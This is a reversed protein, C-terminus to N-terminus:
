LFPVTSGARARISPHNYTLALRGLEHHTTYMIIFIYIPGVAYIPYVCRSPRSHHNATLAPYGPVCDSRYQTSFVYILRFMDALAAGGRARGKCSITMLLITHYINCHLPTSPFCYIACYHTCHLPPTPHGFLPPTQLSYRQNM